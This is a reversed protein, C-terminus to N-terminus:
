LSSSHPFAANTSWLSPLSASNAISYTSEGANAFLSTNDVNRMAAGVRKEHTFAVCVDAAFLSTNDVNRMAAGVRKEHTFAVCVDAAFLSTNDVNRMAAGVRKEHTFAVCVDAAFLLLAHTEDRANDEKSRL